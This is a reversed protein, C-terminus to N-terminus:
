RDTETALDVACQAAAFMLATHYGDFGERLQRGDLDDLIDLVAWRQYTSVNADYPMPMVFMTHHMGRIRAYVFGDCRLPGGTIFPDVPNCCGADNMHESHWGLMLLEAEERTLRQPGDAPTRWVTPKEPGRHSRHEGPRPVGAHRPTITEAATYAVGGVTRANETHAHRGTM